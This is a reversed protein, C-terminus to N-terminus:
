FTIRGQPDQVIQLFEPTDLQEKDSVDEGTRYHVRRHKHQGARMCEIFSFPEAVIQEKFISDLLQDLSQLRYADRFVHQDQMFLAGLLTENKAMTLRTYYVGKVENSLLTVTQAGDILLSCALLHLIREGCDKPVSRIASEIAQITTSQQVQQSLETHSRVIERALLRFQALAQDHNVAGRHVFNFCERFTVYFVDVHESMIQFFPQYLDAYWEPTMNRNGSSEEFIIDPILLVANHHRFHNVFSIFCDPADRAAKSLQTLLMNDMLYITQEDEIVFNLKVYTRVAEYM